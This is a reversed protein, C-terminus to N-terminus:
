KSKSMGVCHHLVTELKEENASESKWVEYGVILLLIDIKLLFNQLRYIGKYLFISKNSSVNFKKKKLEM